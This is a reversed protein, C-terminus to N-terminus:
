VGGGSLGALDVMEVSSSARPAKWPRKRLEPLAGLFGLAASQLSSTFVDAASDGNLAGAVGGSSAGGAAGGVASAAFVAWGNPRLDATKHFAARGSRALRAAPEIAESLFGGIGAGIAASLAGKWAASGADEGLLAAQGASEAAGLVGGTAAGTATTIGINLAVTGLSANVSSPLAAGVGGTIAGGVAGVAIGLGLFGFFVGAAEGGELDRSVIEVVGGIAGTVAGVAAGIAAGVLLGILISLLEEGNPDELLIPLNAAYLYPSAQQFKPDQSLFRGISPDYLRARLDYLEIPDWERSIFRYRSALRQPGFPARLAGGFPLFDYGALLESRADVLARISGISDRSLFAWEHGDGTFAMGSPGYVHWRWSGDSAMELLPDGSLSRVYVTSAANVQRLIRQGSADFHVRQQIADPAVGREVRLPAGDLVDYGMSLDASSHADGRRQSLSGDARYSLQDPTSDASVTQTRDHTAASYGLETAGLQILNGNADYRFADTSDPDIQCASLAGKTDYGLRMSWAAVGGRAAVAIAAPKGSFFGQGGVGGETYSLTQRLGPDEILVPWAASNYRLTRVAESLDPRTWREEVLLGNRDYRYAHRQGDFSLEATRGVRDYRQLVSLAAASGLAPYRTALVKSLNDYAYEVQWESDVSSGSIRYHQATTQVWIDYFREEVVVVPDSGQPSEDQLQRRSRVPLGVALLDDRWLGDFETSRHAPLDPWAPDEVHLALQVPDFRGLAIGASIPRSYQDYKFWQYYESASAAGDPMQAFRLRGARDHLMRRDAGDNAHRTLTRRGIFDYDFRDSWGMPSQLEVLRGAPDYLRRSVDYRDPATGALAAELVVQQRLTSLTFVRQGDANISEQLRLAGVPEGFRGDSLGYGTRATHGAGGAPPIAFAAGPLGQQVPRGLPSAEYRTRVYAFEASDPNQDAVRGTLAATAADYAALRSDYDLLPVAAAALEAGQSTVAARGLPDYFRQTAIVAADAVVQSQRTLLAGDQYDLSVLPHTGVSLQDISVEAAAFLGAQALPAQAREVACLRRGDAFALVTRGLVMLLLQRDRRAVEIVDARLVLEYSWGSAGGSSLRWRQGARIVDIQIIAALPAAHANFTALISADVRGQDLVAAASATLQLIPAFGSRALVSREPLAVLRWGADAEDCELRVDGAVLGYSGNERPAALNRMRASVFWDGATDGLDTYHIEAEDTSRHELRGERPTFADVQGSWSASWDPGLVLSQLTGFTQPKLSLLSNDTVGAVGLGPPWAQQPAWLAVLAEEADVEIVANDFDGYRKRVTQGNSTFADVPRFLSDWATARFDSAAPGFRVDDVWIDITGPNDISVRLTQPDVSGAVEV